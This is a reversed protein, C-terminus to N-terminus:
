ALMSCMLSIYNGGWCAKCNVSFEASSIATLILRLLFASSHERHNRSIDHLLRIIIILAKNEKAESIINEGPQKEQRGLCSGHPLSATAPAQIQLPDVRESTNPWADEGNSNMGKEPSKWFKVVFGRASVMWSTLSLASVHSIRRFLRHLWVMKPASTIHLSDQQMQPALCCSGLGTPLSLHAPTTRGRCSRSGPGEDRLPFDIGALASWTHCTSPSPSGDKSALRQSGAGQELWHHRM